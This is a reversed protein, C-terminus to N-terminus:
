PVNKIQQVPKKRLDMNLSDPTLLSDPDLISDVKLTDAENVQNPNLKLEVDLKNLSDLVHEYIEGMEEPKDIYYDYTKIFTERDINHRNFIEKYYSYIVAASDPEERKRQLGLAEAFQVEVMVETFKDESLLDKPRQAEKENCASIIITFLFSYFFYKM